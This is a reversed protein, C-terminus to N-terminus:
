SLMPIPIATKRITLVHVTFHVGTHSKYKGQDSVVNYIGALVMTSSQKTQVYYPQRQRGHAKWEYFGDALVLCRQHRKMMIFSSADNVLSDARVNM